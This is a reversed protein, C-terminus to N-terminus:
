GTNSTDHTDQSISCLGTFTLVPDRKTNRLIAHIDAIPVFPECAEDWLLKNRKSKEGQTLGTSSVKNAQFDANYKEAFTQVVERLSELRPGEEYVKPAAQVLM